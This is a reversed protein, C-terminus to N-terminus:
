RGREARGRRLLGTRPAPPITKRVWTTLREPTRPAGNVDGVNAANGTTTDVM